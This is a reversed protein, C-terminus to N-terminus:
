QGGTLDQNKAFVVGCYTGNEQLQLRCAQTSGLGLRDTEGLFIVLRRDLFFDRRDPFSGSQCDHITLCLIVLLCRLLSEKIRM